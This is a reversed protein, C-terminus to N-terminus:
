SPIRVDSRPPEAPVSSNVPSTIRRTLRFSSTQADRHFRSFLVPRCGKELLRGNKHLMLFRNGILVGRVGLRPRGKRKETRRFLRSQNRRGSPRQRRAGSSKGSRGSRGRGNPAGSTGTRRRPHGSCARDAREPTRRRACRHRERRLRERRLQRRQKRRFVRAAEAGRSAPLLENGAAPERVPRLAGRGHEGDGRFGLREAPHDPRAASDGQQDARGGREARRIAASIEQVLEATKQIDPVIQTLMAGAKEAVAVSRGSLETIEGAAKQSREALKRVESAVVAFGKGHEGARAAEIAANLALLNTQRAIEEIIGIKGAIEKMAAVTEVVASGGEEADSASKRAIKETQLANDANQRINSSMEEMSSSVEEAAAAQETAGQSMQQATGSMQESGSAVYQSAQQVEQVVQSLRGVMTRLADALQGIEDGQEVQLTKTFDGESMALAFAVGQHIPRTILRTLYVAIIVALVLAVLLGAIIVTVSGSIRNVTSDAMGQAGAAGAEVVSRAAKNLANYLSTRNEALLELEAYAQRIEGLADYYALRVAGIRDLEAIDSAARTIQKIEVALPKVADLSDMAQQILADDKNLQGKFNLVRAENALDIAENMITIKRMRERLAAPEAGRALDSEFQRNQSELFANGAELYQAAALDLIQRKGIIREIVARTEELAARYAAISEEATDVGTRLKVLREYKRALRDADGLRKKVQDLLENGESYGAQDFSDVYSRIAFVAELTFREIDSAIVVEPVHEDQIHKAEVQINLMNFVALGGVVLVLLIVSGFGVAM